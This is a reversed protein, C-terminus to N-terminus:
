MGLLQRITEEAKLPSDAAHYRAVPVGHSNLLFKEYNWAIDCGGCDAFRPATSRLFRFLPHATPGNVEVTDFVTLSAAGMPVGVKTHMYARECATSGPAQGGFENSPFALVQFGSANYRSLLKRIGPYNVNQM